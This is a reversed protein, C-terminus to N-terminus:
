SKEPESAALIERMTTFLKLIDACWASPNDFQSARSYRHPLYGGGCTEFEPCVRCATPRPINGAILAFPLARSQPLEEISHELVNLGTEGLSEECVRLADNAQISGDTEVILYPMPGGGFADIQTGGGLLLAFIDQFFRINVSPDNEKLWAHLAPLLYDAAPTPGFQAFRQAFDDHSVDPLLFDMDVINLSRLFRYADAGSTGPRVVCLISFKADADQLHRVAEVVRVHSGRGSHDVRAADHQAADGDLSLSASVRLERLLRAWEADLLVGNTQLALSGLTESMEERAREVLRRFREKGLMLPEGGHFCISMRHGPRAQSYERLRSFIKSAMEESLQAPRNRFTKDRAHYVYCYECNLNCPAVVKLVIQHITPLTPTERELALPTPLSGSIPM